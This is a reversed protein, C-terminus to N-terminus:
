TNEPKRKLRRIAIVAYILIIEPVTIGVALVSGFSVDQLISSAIFQIKVQHTSFQVTFWVYFNHADQTYGQNISQQGDILIIPSTEYPIATKPITINSFGTTGSERNVTFSVTTTMASQNTVITVNSQKFLATNGRIVLNVKAGSDTTAIM